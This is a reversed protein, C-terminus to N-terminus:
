MAIFIEWWLRQFSFRSNAEMDLSLRALIEKPMYDTTSKYIIRPQDDKIDEKKTIM